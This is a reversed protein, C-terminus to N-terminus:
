TSVTKRAPKGITEMGQEEMILRNDPFGLESLLHLLWNAVERTTGSGIRVLIGASAAADVFEHNHYEPRRGVDGYLHQWLHVMHHLLIVAVDSRSGVLQRPDLEIRAQRNHNALAIGGCRVFQGPKIAVVVEPLKGDFLRRNLKRYLLELQCEIREYRSNITKEDVAANDKSSGEEGMTKVETIESVNLQAFDSLESRTAPPLIM